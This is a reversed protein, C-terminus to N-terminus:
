LHASAQAVFRQPDGPTIMWKRDDLELMVARGLIDTGSLHFWGHRASWYMGSFAFLGGNGVRLAGNILGDEHYVARLNTLSVSKDGILRQIVLTDGVLRYGRPALLLCAGLTVAAILMFFPSGPVPALWWALCVGGLVVVGISTFLWLLKGWPATFQTTTM